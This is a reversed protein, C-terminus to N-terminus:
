PEVDSFEHLFSTIAWKNGIIGKRNLIVQSQKNRITCIIICAPSHTCNGKCKLSLIYLLYCTFNNYKHSCSYLFCKLVQILKIYITHKLEYLFSNTLLNNNFYQNHLIYVLHCIRMDRSMKYM